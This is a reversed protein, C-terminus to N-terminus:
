GTASSSGGPSSKRMCDLGKALFPVSFLTVDITILRHPPSSVAGVPDPRTRLVIVHTAGEAVATRYPIPECLFADALHTRHHQRPLRRVAAPTSRNLHHHEQGPSRLLWNVWRLPHRIKNGGGEGGGQRLGRVTSSTPSPSYPIPTRQNATITMIHSTIGPVLMSARICLLLSRMDHYHGGSRSLIVSSMNTLSSAVIRLPQHVENAAFADWDLPLQKGM